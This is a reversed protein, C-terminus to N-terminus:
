DSGLFPTASDLFTSEFLSQSMKDFSIHRAYSQDRYAHSSDMLFLDPGKGSALANKLNADYETPDIKVYTVGSFRNDNDAANRLALNISDDDLTGWIVINGISSANNTATILAFILIGGLGLAGFTALLTIQFASLKPM